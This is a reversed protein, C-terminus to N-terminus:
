VSVAYPLTMRIPFTFTPSSQSLAARKILVTSSLVVEDSWLEMVEDSWLEM